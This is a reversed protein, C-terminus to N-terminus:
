ADEVLFMVQRCDTAGKLDKVCFEIEEMSSAILSFDGTQTNMVVQSSNSYYMLSDDDPDSANLGYSFNQGFTLVFDPLFELLPPLNQEQKIAFNFVYPAGYTSSNDVLSYIITSEDYPSILVEINDFSSTDYENNKRYRETILSDKYEVLTGLRIPISKSFLRTDIRSQGNIIQLSYDLEINVSTKSITVDVKPSGLAMGLTLNFYGNVCSELPALAYQSLEQEMFQTSPSTDNSLYLHYTIPEETDLHVPYTHIFGGRWGLTYIGPVLM